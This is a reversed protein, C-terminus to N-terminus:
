TLENIISKHHSMLIVEAICSKEEKKLLLNLEVKNLSKHFEIMEEISRCATNFHQHGRWSDQLNDLEECVSDYRKKLEEINM